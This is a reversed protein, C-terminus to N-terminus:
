FPLDDDSAPKLSGSSPLSSYSTTKNLPKLEPVTFEGKRIKDVPLIKQVALRKGVTGDQKNYEEEGLVFGVYCGRLVSENWNWIWGRNSEEVAEIFAKFFPLGKDSYSKYTKGGWFQKSQSLSLYYDKFEGEAIDYEVELYEKDAVDKVGTIKCVYGGPILRKYDTASEVNSMDIRKM